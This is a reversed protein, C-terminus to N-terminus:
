EVNMQNMKHAQQIRMHTHMKKQLEVLSPWKKILQPNKKWNEHVDNNKM